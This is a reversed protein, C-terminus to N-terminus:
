KVEHSHVPFPFKLFFDMKLSPLSIWSGEPILNHIHLDSCPVMGEDPILLNPHSHPLTIQILSPSGILLIPSLIVLSSVYGFPNADQTTNFSMLYPTTTKTTDSISNSYSSDLILNKIINKYSFKLHLISTLIKKLIVKNFYVKLTMFNVLSLHLILWHYKTCRKCIICLKLALM